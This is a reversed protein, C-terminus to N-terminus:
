WILEFKTLQTHYIKKMTKLKSSLYYPHKLWETYTEDTREFIWVTSNTKQTSSLLFNNISHKDYFVFDFTEMTISM